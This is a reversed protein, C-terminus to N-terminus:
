LNWLPFISKIMKGKLTNKYGTNIVLNLEVNVAQLEVKNFLGELLDTLSTLRKINILLQYNIQNETITNKNIFKHSLINPEISDHEIFFFMLLQLLDIRNTKSIMFSYFNVPQRVSRSDTDKLYFSNIMPITFNLFYLLIWCKLLIKQKLHEDINLTNLLSQPNLHVAVKAIKPKSYISKLKLKYNLDYSNYQLTYSTKTFFDLM